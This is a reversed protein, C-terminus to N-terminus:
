QHDSIFAELASKSNTNGLRDVIVGNEIYLFTPVSTVEILNITETKLPKDENAVDTDYYYILTGQEKVFQTLIPAFQKCSPCTPRGVYIFGTKGNNIFDIVSQSDLSTLLSYDPETSNSETELEPEPENETSEDVSQTSNSLAQKIFFASTLIILVSITIIVIRIVLQNKPDLHKDKSSNNNNQM